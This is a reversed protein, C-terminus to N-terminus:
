STPFPISILKNFVAPQIILFIIGLRGNVLNSVISAANASIKQLMPKITEYGPQGVLPEITPHPFSEKIKEVTTM